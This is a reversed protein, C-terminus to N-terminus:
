FIFSKVPRLPQSHLNGAIYFIIIGTKEGTRIASPFMIINFLLQVIAIIPFSRLYLHFKSFMPPVVRTFIVVPSSMACRESSSGFIHVTSAQGTFPSSISSFLRRYMSQSPSPFSRILSITHVEFHAVPTRFFASRSMLPSSLM